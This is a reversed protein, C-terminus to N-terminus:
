TIQMKGRKCSVNLLYPRMSDFLTVAARPFYADLCVLWGWVNPLYAYTCNASYLLTTDTASQGIIFVRSYVFPLMEIGLPFTRLSM